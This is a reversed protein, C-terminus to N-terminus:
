IEILKVKAGYFKLFEGRKYQITPHVESTSRGDKLKYFLKQLANIATTKSTYYYVSKDEYKYKKFYTNPVHELVIALYVLPGLIELKCKSKKKVPEYLKKNHKIKLKSKKVPDVNKKIRYAKRRRM